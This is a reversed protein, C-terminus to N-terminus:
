IGLSLPTQTFLSNSQAWPLVANSTGCEHECALRPVRVHLYATYHFFNERHWIQQVSESVRAHAGCRPCRFTGGHYFDITIDMRRETDSFTIAKIEWPATLGLTAAILAAETM